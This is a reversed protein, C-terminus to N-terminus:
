QHFFILPIYILWPTGDRRDGIAPSVGESLKRGRKASIRQGQNGWGGEKRRGGKLWSIV